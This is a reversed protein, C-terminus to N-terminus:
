RFRYHVTTPASRNGDPDVSYITLSVGMGPILIPIGYELAFSGDESVEAPISGLQAQQNGPQAQSVGSLGLNPVVFVRSGPRAQGRLEFSQDVLSNDTPQHVRVKYLGGFISVPQCAVMEERGEANEYTARLCGSLANDQARIRYTGRYVGAPGESMAQPPWDNIQFSATGGSPAQFEVTLDDGECLTSEVPFVLNAIRRPPAVEFSWEKRVAQGNQDEALFRARVTGSASPRYPRYSLHDRSRLSILTVEHEDVWLRCSEPRVAGESWRVEIHPRGEEVRAQPPPSLHLVQAGVWPTLLWLWLLCRLARNTDM